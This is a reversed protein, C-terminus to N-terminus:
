SCYHMMSCHRSKAFQKYSILDGMTEILKLTRDVYCWFYLQLGAGAIHVTGLWESNSIVNLAKGENM